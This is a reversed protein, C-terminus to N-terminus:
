ESWSAYVLRAMRCSSWHAGVQCGGCAQSAVSAAHFGELALRQCLYEAAQSSGFVFAGGIHLQTEISLMNWPGFCNVSVREKGWLLQPTQRSCVYLVSGYLAVSGKVLGRYVRAGVTANEDHIGGWKTALKGLNKMLNGHEARNGSGFNRPWHPYCFGTDLVGQVIGLPPVLLGERTQHDRIRINSGGAESRCSRGVFCRYREALREFRGDLFRCVGHKLSQFNCFQVLPM